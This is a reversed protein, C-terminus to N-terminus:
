YWENAWYVIENRNTSIAVGHSQGPTVTKAVIPDLVMIEYDLPFEIQDKAGTLFSATPMGNTENIHSFTCGGFFSVTRKRIFISHLQSIENAPLALRLQIFAGGQLFHPQHYFKKLSASKPIHVPFHQVLDKDWQGRIHSYSRLSHSVRPFTLWLLIILAAFAFVCLGVLGLIIRIINNKISM